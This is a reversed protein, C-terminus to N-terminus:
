SSAPGALAAFEADLRAEDDESLGGWTFLRTEVEDDPFVLPDDALAALDGGASALEERVGLVPSIYGVWATIRAANAPDYVYNMFRAAAEVNRAGAPIVMTDFWQIGGEDPIVFEIDPRSARLLSTDGSWAMTAVLDAQDLREHVEGFGVLGIHGSEIRDRLQALATEAANVTPRSPDDGNALMMLGVAERMEGIIGVRGAFAPDLLDSVAGLPRETLAPDYAIGTIGAQWPMQHRAGRDWANTMFVPDLNAHNPIVEIPLPEANGQGIMQAARWNTPVVLDYLPPSTEIANDVILQYGTENDEYIDLYRVDVGIDSRVRDITGLEGGESPDVYDSWTLMTFSRSGGLDYSPASGADSCAALGTAGLGVLFSRRSMTM